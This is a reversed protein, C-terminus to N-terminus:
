SGAVLGDAQLRSWVREVPIQDLSEPRFTTEPESQASIVNHGQGLAHTRRWDTPGFLGYVPIGSCSLIHMPASDNTVAFRAHRGLEALELVPFNDSADVGVAQALQRNLDRDDPGGVWVPMFGRGALETALEAFGPWRKQPHRRNAGAHLLVLPYPELGQTSLWERVRTRVNEPAPLQPPGSAPSVGCAILIQNLREHAHCQGTYRDPPHRHYPFRPHNGARDPVGSLACLIGSRDNSQLDILRDFFRARIWLLTQLTSRLGKRSFSQVALGPWNEFLPAFAPETLLWIQDGAFHERIKQIVSTAMIIDGLAGYKIILIKM